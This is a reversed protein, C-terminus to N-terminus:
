GKWRRIKKWLGSGIAKDLSTLAKMVGELVDEEGAWHKRVVVPDTHNIISNLAFAMFAIDDLYGIPGLLIEPMLDVPSFFYIIVGGLLAKDKLAVARDGVLGCLLHFLDPAFLLYQGWRDARGEKARLWLMIRKRLRIYFDESKQAM